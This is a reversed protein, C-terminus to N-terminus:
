NVQVLGTGAGNAPMTLTFTGSVVTQSGFTYAAVSKNGNSSNYMLICDFATASFSPGTTWSATPTTYAQAGTAAPANFAGFTLGGAVYSGSAGVEGTATYTATSANITATAFYLAGKFVDQTTAARVFGVGFNHQGTLLDVRASNCFAQTNAM